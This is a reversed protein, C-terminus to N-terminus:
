KDTVAPTLNLAAWLRYKGNDAKVEIQMERITISQGEMMTFNRPYGKEVETTKVDKGDFFNVLIFSGEDIQDADVEINFM